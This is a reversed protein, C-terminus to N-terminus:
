WGLQLAGRPRLLRRHLGREDVAHALQRRGGELLRRDDGFPRFEPQSALTFPAPLLAVAVQQEFDETREALWIGPAMERVVRYKGLREGEHM